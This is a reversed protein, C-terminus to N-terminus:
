WRVVVEFPTMGAVFVVVGGWVVVRCAVGCWSVVRYAVGRCSVGCWAVVRCVVSGVGVVNM